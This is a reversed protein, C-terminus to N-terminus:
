AHEEPVQGQSAVQQPLNRLGESFQQLVKGRDHDWRLLHLALKPIESCRV